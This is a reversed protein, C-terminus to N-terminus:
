DNESDILHKRLAKFLNEYVIPNDSEPIQLQINISISPTLPQKVNVNKNKMDLNPPNNIIIPETIDTTTTESKQETQKNAVVLKGESELLLGSVELLNAVANAGTKNDSTDKDGSVYLIHKALEESTMGNKIRVTTILNSLFSNSAIIESLYKKVDEDQNHEFARALKGGIESITKKNGGSIINSSIMFQNNKSVIFKSIGSLKAIDDISSDGKTNGYAIIIKRLQEYSSGPLKFKEEAM